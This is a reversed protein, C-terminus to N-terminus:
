SVQILMAELPLLNNALCFVLVLFKYLFENEFLTQTLFIFVNM